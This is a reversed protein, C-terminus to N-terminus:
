HLWNPDTWNTTFSQQMCFLSTLTVAGNTGEGEQTQRHPVQWCQGHKWSAFPHHKGTARSLITIIEPMIIAKPTITGLMYPWDPIQVLCASGMLLGVTLSIVMLIITDALWWRLWGLSWGPGRRGQLTKLSSTRPQHCIMARISM